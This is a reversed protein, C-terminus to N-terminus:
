EQNRKLEKLVAFPNPQKQEPEVEGFSLEDKTVKCDKIDHMPVIPISLILEDEFLELSNIEGHENLEVPDYAEPIDDISQGEKIPTFSFSQEIAYDFPENCRQCELSVKTSIEGHFFTLGQADIEFRLGVTIEDLIELVTENLRAMGDAAMVGQYDSRQIACKHPDVQKPLRVKSM